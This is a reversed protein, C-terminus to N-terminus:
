EQVQDQVVAERLRLAVESGSTDRTADEGCCDEVRTQHKSTQEEIEKRRGHDGAQVAIEVCRKWMVHNELFTGLGAFFTRTQM